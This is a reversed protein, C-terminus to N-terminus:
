GRIALIYPDKVPDFGSGTPLQSTPVLGDDGLTAVGGPQGLLGRFRSWLDTILKKFIM